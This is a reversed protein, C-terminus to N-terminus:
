FQLCAWMCKTLACWWPSPPREGIGEEEENQDVSRKQEIIGFWEVKTVNSWSGVCLLSGKTGYKGCVERRM